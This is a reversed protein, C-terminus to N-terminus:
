GHTDVWPNTALLRDSGRLPPLIVTALPSNRAALFFVLGLRLVDPNRFRLRTLPDPTLQACCGAPREPLQSRVGYGTGDGHQRGKAIRFEGSRSESSAARREWAAMAGRNRDRSELVLASFRGVSFEEFRSGVALERM